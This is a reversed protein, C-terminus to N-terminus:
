FKKRNKYRDQSQFLGFAWKPYMPAKGTLNRYLDIIHDFSPGYFFYYDVMKGSESEYKFQTNGAEAGYFKSEAYNDFLLGYGGTSLLVPIAGTLYKIGMDQNRGKYNISLSDVPHCGLGFLGEEKPSKFSSVCKYTKIGAVTTDSMTKNNEDAEALIIKGSLDSYTIAQTQRNVTIKLRATTIIVDTKNDAAAFSKLYTPKTEVVLSQKDALATLNTYKVEVLEDNVLCINMNGKELKFSIGFSTKQWSKVQAKSTGLISLLLVIIATTKRHPNNINIM